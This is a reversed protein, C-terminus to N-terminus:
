RIHAKIWNHFFPASIRDPRTAKAATETYLAIPRGEKIYINRVNPIIKTPRLRVEWEKHHLSHRLVSEDPTLSLVFLAKNILHQGGDLPRADVYYLFELWEVVGRYGANGPNKEIKMALMAPYEGHIIANKNLEMQLHAVLEPRVVIEFDTGPKLFSQYAGGTSRVALGHAVGPGDTVQTNVMVLDIPSVVQEVHDELSGVLQKLTLGEKVQGTKQFPKRPPDDPRVPEPPFEPEVRVPPQDPPKNFGVAPALPAPPTSGGGPETAPPQNATSVAPPPSPAIIQPKPSPISPPAVVPKSIAAIEVANEKSPRTALVIMVVAAAASAAAAGIIWPLPSRPQPDDDVADFPEVSADLSPLAELKMTGSARSPSPM